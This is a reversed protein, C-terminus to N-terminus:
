RYGNGSGGLWSKTVASQTIRLVPSFPLPLIGFKYEVEYTVVLRVNGDADLLVSYDGFSLDPSFSLGNLGGVVNVSRLYEDGTMRGNSLYRGVLPRALQELLFSGGASVGFNLMAQMFAEPDDMIDQGFDFIRDAAAMGDDYIRKLSLDNIAKMVSDIDSAIEQAPKRIKKSESDISKLADDVGAAELTYSYISITIATQTLAYHIRTQLTIINVLSLISTVFLVFLMFVVTTEVVIYGNEQQKFNNKLKNNFM